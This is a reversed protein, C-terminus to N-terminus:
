SGLGLTAALYPLWGMCEPTLAMCTAEDPGPGLLFRLPNEISGPFM